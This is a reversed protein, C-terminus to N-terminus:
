DIRSRKVGQIGFHNCIADLRNEIRDLRPYIEDFASRVMLAHIRECDLSFPNRAAGGHGRLPFPDFVEKEPYRHERRSLSKDLSLAMVAEASLLLHFHGHCNDDGRSNAKEWFGFNFSVATVPNVVNIQTEITRCFDFIWKWTDPSIALVNNTIHKWPNVLIERENDFKATCVWRDSYYVILQQAVGWTCDGCTDYHPYVCKVSSKCTTLSCKRSSHLQLEPVGAAFVPGDMRSMKHLVGSMSRMISAVDRKELIMQNWWAEPNFRIVIKQEAMLYVLQFSLSFEPNELIKELGKRAVASIEDHVGVDFIYMPALDDSNSSLSM